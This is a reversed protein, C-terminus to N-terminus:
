LLDKINVEKSRELKGLLKLYRKTPKGNYESKFYRSNLLEYVKETCFITDFAQHLRRTKRSYTQKQYLGRYASRHYFYTDILHLKRCRKGTNPCVFYWVVGKGLNSPIPELEVQYRIPQENCLYSLEIYPAEPNTYVCITISGTKREGRSWTIVGSRFQNPQLYGWRILDSINIIKCDEFLNPFM